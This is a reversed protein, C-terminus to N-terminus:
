LARWRDVLLRGHTVPYSFQQRVPHRRDTSLV